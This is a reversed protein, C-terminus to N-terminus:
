GKTEISRWSPARPVLPGSNYLSARPAHIALSKTRWTIQVQRSQTCLKGLTHLFTKRPLINIQCSLSCKHSHYWRAVKTCKLRNSDFVVIYFGYVVLISFSNHGSVNRNKIRISESRNQPHRYIGLFLCLCGCIINWFAIRKTLVM